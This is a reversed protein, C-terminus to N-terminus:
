NAFREINGHGLQGYLGTGWTYVWGGKLYPPILVLAASHWAGAAVQLVVKGRLSTVEIPMDRNRQDGVGLRGGDNCGWSFVGKLTLAV